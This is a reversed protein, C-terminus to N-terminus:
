RRTGELLHQSILELNREIGALRGRVEAAIESVADIREHVRKMDDHGPMHRLAEEVVDIRARHAACIEPDACASARAQTERAQASIADLRRELDQEIEEITDRTVAQQRLLWAFFAVILTLATQGVDVAIRWVDASM